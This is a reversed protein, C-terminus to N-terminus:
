NILSHIKLQYRAVHENKPSGNVKLLHLALESLKWDRYMQNREGRFTSRIHDGVSIHATELIACARELAEEFQYVETYGLDKLVQSAYFRLTSETLCDKFERFGSLEQSWSFVIISAKM